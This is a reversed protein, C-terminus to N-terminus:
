NIKDNVTHRWYFGSIYIRWQTNVLCLSALKVKFSIFYNLWFSSQYFFKKVFHSSSSFNAGFHDRAHNLWLKAWNAIQPVKRNTLPWNTLFSTWCRFFLWSTVSICLNALRVRPWRLHLSTDACTSQLVHISVHQVIPNVWKNM